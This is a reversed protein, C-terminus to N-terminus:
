EEGRPDFIFYQEGNVRNRLWGLCFDTNINARCTFGINADRHWITIRGHKIKMRDAKVIGSDYDDPATFRFTKDNIDVYLKTGRWPDAFIHTATTGTVTVTIVVTNENSLSAALVPMTHTAPVVLVCILALSVLFATARRRTM